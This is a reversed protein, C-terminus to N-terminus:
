ARTASAPIVRPRRSARIGSCSRSSASISAPRWCIRRWPTAYCTPRLMTKLCAIRRKVSTEKLKRADFLHRLYARLWCRDIEGVHRDAGVFRRFEELDIAYARLTNASLNKSARCHGLFEESAQHVNMSPTKRRCCLPSLRSVSVCPEGAIESLDNETRSCPVVTRCRGAGSGHRRFERLCRLEVKAMKPTM